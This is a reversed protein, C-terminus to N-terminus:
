GDHPAKKSTDYHLLRAFMAGHGCVDWEEVTVSREQSSSSPPTEPVFVDLLAVAQQAAQTHALAYFIQRGVRDSVVLEARRLQGLYQSLMPQTIGTLREIDAVMRRKQRLLFLIMLRQPQALVRLAEALMRCTEESVPLGKEEQEYSQSLM